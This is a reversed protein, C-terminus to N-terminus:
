TIQISAAVQDIYGFWNADVKTGAAVARSWVMEVTKGNKQFVYTKYHWDYEGGDINNPDAAIVRVAKTGKMGDNSIFEVSEGMDERPADVVSLSFRAETPVGPGTTIEPKDPGYVEPVSKEGTQPTTLLSPIDTSRHIAWGNPVKFSISGDVSSVREGLYLEEGIAEDFEESTMYGGEAQQVAISDDETFLHPWAAWGVLGLVAIALVILVAVSIDGRRVKYM